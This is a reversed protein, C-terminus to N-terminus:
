TLRSIYRPEYKASTREHPRLQYAMISEPLSKAGFLRRTIVQVMYPINLQLMYADGHRLTNLVQFVIYM